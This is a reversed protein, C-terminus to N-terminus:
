TRNSSGTLRYFLLYPASSVREPGSISTASSDDFHGWKGTQMFADATYHGGGLGGSHNVVAQLSYIPAHDLALNYLATSSCYPQLDLQQESIDVPTSNKQMSAWSSMLLRRSSAHSGRFRKLHLVLVQPWSQIRLRKQIPQVCNCADCKFGESASMEEKETFMDLAQRVSFSKCHAPIPLSLDLFPEFSYTVHKCVKCTVSSQLVGSFIDDVVSNYRSLFYELAEATQEARDKDKLERYPLKGQVRNMESQLGELLALLFEQSDQQAREGWRADKRAMQKVLASPSVCNSSFYGGGGPAKTWFEKVLAAWAGSLGNERVNASEAMTHYVVEPLHLLCQLIANLFCTNGLNKLGVLGDSKLNYKHAIWEFSRPFPERSYRARQTIRGITSTTLESPALGKSPTVYPELMSDRLMSDGDGIPPRRAKMVLEPSRPTPATMHQQQQQQKRPLPHPTDEGDLLPPTSPEALGGQQHGSRQPTVARRNPTSSETVDNRCARSGENPGSSPSIVRASLETAEIAQKIANDLLRRSDYVSSYMTADYPKRIEQELDSSIRARSTSASTAVVHGPRPVTGALLRTKPASSDVAFSSAAGVGFYTESPKLGGTAGVGGFLDLTRNSNYQHGNRPSNAVAHAMSYPESSPPASQGKVGTTATDRAIPISQMAAHPDSGTYTLGVNLTTHVIPRTARRHSLTAQLAAGTLADQLQVIDSGYIATATRGMELSPRASSRSSSYITPAGNMRDLATTSSPVSADARGKMSLASPMPM